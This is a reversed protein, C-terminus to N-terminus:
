RTHLAANYSGWIICDFLDVAFASFIWLHGRSASAFCKFSNVFHAMGHSKHLTQEKDGNSADCRSYSLIDISQRRVHVSEHWKLVMKFLMTKRMNHETTMRNCVSINVESVGELHTQIEKKKKQVNM